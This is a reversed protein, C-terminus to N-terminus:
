QSSDTRQLSHHKEFLKLLGPLDDIHVWHGAKPLVHKYFPVLPDKHWDDLQPFGTDWAKNRGGAVLDVRTGSELVNALQGEFDQKAFDEMLDEAVELDFEFREDKYSSALWKATAVDIGAETLSAEIKLRSDAVGDRLLTQLQRVISAVSENLEGPVTDLLWVRSPTPSLDEYAYQLSLRGGLSHGVLTLDSQVQNAELTTQVDRVCDSFTTTIAESISPSVQSRGHGRIDVLLGPTQHTAALKSGLTRVNRGNGLLGHLFVFPPAKHESGVWDAHLRTIFRKGATM